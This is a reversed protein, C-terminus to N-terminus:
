ASFKVRESSFHALRVAMLGAVPKGLGLSMASLASKLRSPHYTICSVIGATSHQAM